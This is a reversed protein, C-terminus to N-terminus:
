AGFCWWGLFPWWCWGRDGFSSVMVMWLWGYGANERDSACVERSDKYPFSPCGGAMGSEHPPAVWWLQRRHHLTGLRSFDTCLHSFKMKPYSIGFKQMDSLVLKWKGSVKELQLSQGSAYLVFILVHIVSYVWVVPKWWTNSQIKWVMCTRPYICIWIVNVYKINCIHIYIYIYIYIYIHDM